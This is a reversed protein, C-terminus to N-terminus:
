EKDWYKMGVNLSILSNLRRTLTRHREMVNRQLKNETQSSM